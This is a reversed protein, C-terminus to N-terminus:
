IAKHNELYDHVLVRICGAIPISILGGLVGFLTFGITLSIIIALASVEVTRSQVTPSIFNNEIQQYIFYYVIFIIAAGVDNVGILLTAIIAGVTAGFMPVLGAVFLIFAIPIALNVPMDFLTSLILIVILACIGSIASILVQGYVYGHIVKYMGYVIKQHRGRRQTNKYVGWLRKIWVPGEVLMFFTMVLVLLTSIFAQIISSISSIFSGGLSSATVSAQHQINNLTDSYQQELGYRSVFDDVWHAQRSLSEILAPLTQFFHALQDIIMPVVTLFFTVLAAVVIVYALATAGVRSRSPLRKAIGSVSPNLAVALFVAVSILILAEYALFIALLSVLFGVMVLWFRIFTSTPIDHSIQSSM